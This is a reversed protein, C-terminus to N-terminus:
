GEVEAQPLERVGDAAAGKKPKGAWTAALDTGLRRVAILEAVVSVSIEEHSRAGIYSGMPTRVTALFEDAV